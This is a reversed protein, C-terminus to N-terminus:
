KLLEEIKINRIQKNLIRVMDLKKVRSWDGGIYRRCYMELDYKKMKEFYMIPANSSLNHALNFKTM